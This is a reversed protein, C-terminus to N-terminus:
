SDLFSLRYILPSSLVWPGFISRSKNHHGWFYIEPLFAHSWREHMFTFPFFTRLQTYDRLTITKLLTESEQTVQLCCKVWQSRLALEESITLTRRLMWHVICAKGLSRRWVACQQTFFTQINSFLPSLLWVQSYRSHRHLPQGSSSDWPSFSLKEFYASHKCYGKKVSVFKHGSSLGSDVMVACWCSSFYAEGDKLHM